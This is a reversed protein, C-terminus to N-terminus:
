CRSLVDFFKNLVERKNQAKIVPRGIVLMDAGSRLAEEPTAIRKQDDAKNEPFRIGPVVSIFDKHIEKKLKEVEKASSVIGDIGVDVAENALKLALQDITYRSGIYDTYERSHATLITVALLKLGSRGRAEVAKELMQRGGLAHVTLYNVDLDVASLVGNYVTNPIDHLKLDLFIEFNMSKVLDVIEKGYKIFLAYGVKIVLNYGSIENLIKEAENIDTVDLAIAIRKETM